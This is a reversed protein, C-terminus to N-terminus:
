DTSRKQALFHEFFAYIQANSEETPEHNPRNTMGVRGGYGLLTNAAVAPRLASWRAPFDESGGSVLFPRPAMLMHLEHLDHRAAVLKEYAGTRPNEATVLGPKRTRGTELGLYWPEWYNVSGRAEDFVIGPDSWVACAFKEYLCSGFMAWKGGYSHGVIGIRAPDVNPLAALANYCNAAIYGLFSLPQCMASGLEPKRADGGPSGIALTVFGRKALQYAFDRLPKHTLGVSTEPDYYPVVVAPFPGKGAPELLFGKLSQGPAVEVLIRSQIFNERPATELKELHPKEILAPWPGLLGHWYELIERRRQGWEKPGNVARGDYFKPAADQPAAEKSFEAPLVFYPALTEPLPRGAAFAAPSASSLAATVSLWCLAWPLPLSALPRMPNQLSRGFIPHFFEIGLHMLACAKLIFASWGRM